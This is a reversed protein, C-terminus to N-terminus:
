WSKNAVENLPRWRHLLWNSAPFSLYHQLCSHMFCALSNGGAVCATGTNLTLSAGSRHGQGLHRRSLSSIIEPSWVAWQGSSDRLNLSPTWYFEFEILFWFRNSLGYLRCMLLFTTLLSKMLPSFTFACTQFSVEIILDPESTVRIARQEQQDTNYSVTYVMNGGYALLQLFFVVCLNICKNILINILETAGPFLFCTRTLQGTYM